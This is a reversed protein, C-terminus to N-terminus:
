DQRWAINSPRQGDAFFSRVAERADDMPVAADAPFESWHGYYHFVITGNQGGDPDCSTFSPPDASASYNLVSADRGLGISLVAGDPRVLEAVFPQSDRAQEDLADLRQDLEEATSVPASQNEAWSLTASDM